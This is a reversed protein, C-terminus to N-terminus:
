WSCTVPISLIQIVILGALVQLLKAMAAGNDEDSMDGLTEILTEMLEETKLLYQTEVRDNIRSLLVGALDGWAWGFSMLQMKELISLEVTLVLEVKGTNYNQFLTKRSEKHSSQIM